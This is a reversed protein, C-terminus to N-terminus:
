ASIGRLRSPSLDAAAIGLRALDDPVRRERILSACLRSLAPSTKIGYGGQGALWFFGEQSDDFGVV